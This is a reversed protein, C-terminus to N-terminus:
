AGEPPTPTPAPAPSPAADADRGFRAKPLRVRFRTQGGRAEAWARGGLHEALIRVVTLSVNGPCAEELEVSGAGRGVVSQGRDAVTLVVASGAAPDDVAELAVEIEGGQPSRQVANGLLNDLIQEFAGPDASLPPVGAAPALSATMSKEALQPKAREIAEAAERGSDLPTPTLVLREAGADLVTLLNELHVQMRALNADIRQLYRDLQDPNLGVGRALLDSYGLISAMPSKLAEALATMVGPDLGPFDQLAPRVVAVAGLYGFAPDVLPELEVLLAPSEFRLDIREPEGRGAAAVTEAAARSRELGAAIRAADPFIETFPQAPRLADIHLLRASAANAFVVAGNDDAVMVGWPIAALAMEYRLVRTDFAESGLEPLEVESALAADSDDWAAATDVSPLGILETGSQTTAARELEILRASLGEVIRELRATQNEIVDYVRGM